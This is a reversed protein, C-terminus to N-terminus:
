QRGTYRALGGDLSSLVRRVQCVRSVQHETDPTPQPTTQFNLLHVHITQGAPARLRWPTNLSGCDTEETVVSALYQDTGSQVPVLM